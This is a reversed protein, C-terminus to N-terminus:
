LDFGLKLGFTLETLTIEHPVGTLTLGTDDEASAPDDGYWYQTQHPSAHLYNFKVRVQLYPAKARAKSLAFRMGTEALVGQGWGSATASKFRLLHDDLDSVHTPALSAQVHLLTKESSGSNFRFGIFPSVYTVRYDLGREQVYFYHITGQDDYQWGGFDVIEQSIREYRVGGLMDFGAHRQSPFGLSAEFSL